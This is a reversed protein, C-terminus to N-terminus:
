GRGIEKTKSYFSIPTPSSHTGVELTEKINKKISLFLNKTFFHGGVVEKTLDKFIPM